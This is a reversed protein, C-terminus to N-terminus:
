DGFLANAMEPNCSVGVKDLTVIPLDKIRKRSFYNRENHYGCIYKGHDIKNIIYMTKHKDWSALVTDGVSFKPKYDKERYCVRHHNNGDAGNCLWRPKGDFDYYDLKFKVPEGCYKCETMEQKENIEEIRKRQEHWSMDKVRGM